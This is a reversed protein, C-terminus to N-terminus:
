MLQGLSSAPNPAIAGRQRHFEALAPPIDQAAVPYFLGNEYRHLVGFKAECIRVAKQLMSQFVPALERPSSSIVQLVENSAAQQELAEALLRQAEALESTRQEGLARTRRGIAAATRRKQKPTKSRRAVSAKGGKTARRKMGAGPGPPYRLPELSGEPLPRFRSRQQLILHLAIDSM